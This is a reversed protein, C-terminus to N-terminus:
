VEDPIGFHLQRYRSWRREGTVYGEFDDIAKFLTGFFTGSRKKELSVFSKQPLIKKQPPRCVPLNRWPHPLFHELCIYIKTQGFIFVKRSM